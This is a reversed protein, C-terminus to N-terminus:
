PYTPERGLLEDLQRGIWGHPIFHGGPHVDLTVKTGAACERWEIRSHTLYPVVSWDGVQKASLECGLRQRWLMVPYTEDGDPGVPFELVNDALGHVHRVEQPVQPCDEEQDLTGSIGLLARVQLATGRDCAVRWAMISGYSYGSLFINAEDIPYRAAVDAIVEATFKVDDTEASWFDWTKRNGNPAILLVGRRSTAGSIRRHKVPLAGTRQWGHFHILVPMRSEGDWGDPVRVHYSRDGLQCPVDLQCSRDLGAAFTCSAFLFLFLTINKM